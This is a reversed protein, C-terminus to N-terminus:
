DLPASKLAARITLRDPGAQATASTTLAELVQWAFGDAEPVEPRDCATSAELSIEREEFRYSVEIDAGPRAQEVLMTMIEGIAIRLDDLDEVTFDLRAALAATTTRLVSAYAREAPLRLEVDPRESM